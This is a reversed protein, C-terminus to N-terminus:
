GWSSVSLLVQGKIGPAMTASAFPARVEFRSQAMTQQTLADNGPAVGAGQSHWGHAVQWAGDPTAPPVLKVVLQDRFLYAGEFHGNPWFRNDVEYDPVRVGVDMHYALSPDQPNVRASRALFVTSLYILRAGKQAPRTLEAHTRCAPSDEEAVRRTLQWRKGRPAAKLEFQYLAEVKKGKLAPPLGVEDVQLWIDVRVDGFLFRVLNQYAEESNVLGFYGSHARYAYGTAASQTVQGAADLGWLSANAIKVLGDSGHGVFARSLGAAAEYDNRNTGVMCFVNEIPLASAPLYDVRGHRKLVEKMDLFEAIRERNFTNMESASLWSPINIGGVEIGNHPTGYTFLKAVAKRAEASGLKPNQLLGRCVLGGMSHAVLYCKFDAPAIGERAVVLDRVRLILANLAKVYAEIPQAKGDGLLRSGGDYYRHIVVSRAPIGPQDGKPSWNPDMIDYGDEYIEQYGFESMLRLLPSEFIFKNPPRQRDVAARYVTSGLNFGCFPDATTDDREAVTMAYGRVYIIPYHPAQM